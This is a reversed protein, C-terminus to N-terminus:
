VCKREFTRLQQHSLQSQRKPASYQSELTLPLSLDTSILSQSLLSLLLDHTLGYVQRILDRGTMECARLAALVNERLVASVATRRYPKLKKSNSLLLGSRIELETVVAFGYGHHALAKKELEFTRKIEPDSAESAPKVEEVVVSGDDYYVLFDPYKSRIDGDDAYELTFPQEQFFIVSPDFELITARDRELGYELHLLRGCKISPFKFVHGHNSQFIVKRARVQDKDPPIIRSLAANQNTSYDLPM